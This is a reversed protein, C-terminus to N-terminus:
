LMFNFFGTGKIYFILILLLFLSLCSKLLYKSFVKSLDSGFYENTLLLCIHVPSLLVGIFGSVYALMEYSMNVGTNSVIYSSIIPFAIGVYALTIGTLLGTIFPLLVIMIFISASNDSFLNPLLSIAGTSEIAAKFYFIGIVMILMDYNLAKKLYLKIESFTTRYLLFSFILAVIMSLAVNLNLGMSLTLIIIIPSIDKIIKLFNTFNNKKDTAEISYDKRFYVMFYGILIMGITFPFHAAFISRESINFIGTTLIVGPYLPLIYEWIHRFWYNIYTKDENTLDKVGNLGEKVMPASFLAGGPMPLLGIFAPLCINLIKRNKIILSLNTILSALIKKEQMFNSLVLISFIMVVITFTKETFTSKLVAILFKEIPIYFLVETLITALLLVYGVKIKRIILVIMFALLIILKLLDM